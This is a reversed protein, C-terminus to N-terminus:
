LAGYGEVSCHQGRTGAEAVQVGIGIKFTSAPVNFSITQLQNATLGESLQHASSAIEYMSVLVQSPISPNNLPTMM